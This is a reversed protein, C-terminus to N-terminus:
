NNFIAMFDSIYIHLGYEKNTGKNRQNFWCLSLLCCDNRRTLERLYNVFLRKQFHKNVTGNISVIMIITLNSLDELDIGRTSAIKIKSQKIRVELIM